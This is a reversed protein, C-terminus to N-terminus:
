EEVYINFYGIGTTPATGQLVSSLNIIDGSEVPISIAPVSQNFAAVSSTAWAGNFRAVVANRQPNNVGGTTGGNTNKELGIALGGSGGGAGLFYASALVGIIRGKKVLTVTQQSVSTATLTSSYIQYCATM